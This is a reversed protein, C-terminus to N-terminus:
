FFAPERRTHGIAELIATADAVYRGRDLDPPLGHEPMDMLPRAGESKPVANGTTMYRM